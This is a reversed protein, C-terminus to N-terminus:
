WRNVQPLANSSPVASPDIPLSGETKAQSMEDAASSLDDDDIEDDDKGSGVMDDQDELADQNVFSWGNFMKGEQKIISTSDFFCHSRIDDTLINSHWGQNENGTGVADPGKPCQSPISSSPKWSEEKGNQCKMGVAPTLSVPTIKVRPCYHVKNPFTPITQIDPSLKPESGNLDSTCGNTCNTSIKGDDEGQNSMQGIGLMTQCAKSTGEEKNANEKESILGKAESEAKSSTPKRGRPKPQLDDTFPLSSVSAIPRKPRGRKATQAPIVAAAGASGDAAPDRQAKLCSVDAELKALRNRCTALEAEARGIATRLYVNEASQMVLVLPSFRPKGYGSTNRLFNQKFSLLEERIHNDLHCIRQQHLQYLLTVMDGLALQINFHIRLSHRSHNDGCLHLVGLVQLCVALMSEFIDKMAFGHVDPFGMPYYGSQFSYSSISESGTSAGVVIPAQWSSDTAGAPVFQQFPPGPSQFGPRTPFWFPGSSPTVQSQGPQLNHSISGLQQQQPTLFSAQRQTIVTPSNQHMTLFPRSLPYEVSTTQAAYPWHVTPIYQQAVSSAPDHSPSSAKSNKRLCDVGTQKQSENTIILKHTKMMPHFHEVDGYDQEHEM